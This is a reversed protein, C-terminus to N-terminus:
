LSSASPEVSLTLNTRQVQQSGQLLVDECRWIRHNSASGGSTCKLSRAGAARSGPCLKGWMQPGCLQESETEYVFHLVMSVESYEPAGLEDCAWFRRVSFPGPTRREPWIRPKESCSRTIQSAKLVSFESFRFCDGSLVTGMPNDVYGDTNLDRVFIDSSNDPDATGNGM